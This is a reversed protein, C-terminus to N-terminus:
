HLHCLDINKCSFSCKQSHATTSIAYVWICTYIHLYVNGELVSFRVGPLEQLQASDGYCVWYKCGLLCWWAFFAADPLMGLHLGRWLGTAEFLVHWVKRWSEIPIPSPLSWPLQGRQMTTCALCGGGVGTRKIGSNWNHVVICLVNVGRFCSFVQFVNSMAVQNSRLFMARLPICLSM